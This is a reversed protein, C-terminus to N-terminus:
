ELIEAEYFCPQQNCRERRKINVFNFNDANGACQVPSHNTAIPFDTVSESKWVDATATCKSLWATNNPECVFTFM